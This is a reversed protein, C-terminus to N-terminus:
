KLFLVGNLNELRSKERQFRLFEVLLRAKRKANSLEVAPADLLLETTKVSDAAVWRRLQPGLDFSDLAPTNGELKVVIKQGDDSLWALQHSRDQAQTRETPLYLELKYYSRFGAVNGGLVPDKPRVSLYELVSYTDYTSKINLWNAIRTSNDDYQTLAPLATVPVPLWAEVVDLAHQRQLFYLSGLIREADPGTVIKGGPKLKEGEFRDNKELLDRLIATQSRRSVQQANFPGFIAPLIFLALSIPIFKINDKKSWLFYLCLVLLWIAAHAVYYRPETVGYDSIRQGIAVLLLGVMPLLVHWFWRRFASVIKSDTYDPLLYNILYTFIGAISFGLVLSSVWGHPLHWTALIKFSYAYLILFYLGVIPILIYQCLNKFVVNYAKDAESFQYSAPFHYLFFTTNFLGALLVFLHGYMKYRIDLQFLENVALLALSLGTYLILTYAAGIIFNAFLQKNYEWFDAVGLRNLYPAVAVFLHAVLLLGIYPPLFVAEFEPANIDLLFFYLVLLAIGLAALLYKHRTPLARQEAFATLGTCLALGLQAMLWFKLLTYDDAPEAEIAVMLTLIGVVACFLTAPFRRWADRFALALFSLSPRKLM